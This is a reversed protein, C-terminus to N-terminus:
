DPLVLNITTNLEAAHGIAGSLVALSHRLVTRAVWESWPGVGLNQCCHWRKNGVTERWELMGNRHAAIPDRM